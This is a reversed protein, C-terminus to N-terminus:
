TSTHIYTHIYVCDMCTDTEKEVHACKPRDEGKVIYFLLVIDVCFSNEPQCCYNIFLNYFRSCLCSSFDVPKIYFM